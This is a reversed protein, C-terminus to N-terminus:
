DIKFLEKLKGQNYFDILILIYALILPGLVLGAIGFTYLGGIMGILAVAVPLHSKKSLFMPRLINDIAGVFFAGYLFLISASAIRGNLILFFCVPLWVLWTGIVPIIGLIIALITLILTGPIGLILLIIGVAIGQVLGILVQGFVVADTIGRFEDLFKKETTESFPSLKSVYEKLKRADRTAFYFTFLIVVLKLLVNPLDVLFDTFQNLFFSFAKSLLNNLNVSLARGFENGFLSPFSDVLPAILDANQISLYTDFTERIIAPIIFALPIAIVIIIGFILSSTALNENRIKNRIKKYVPYFVYALLLGIFIPIVIDRLVFLGLLGLLIIFAIALIRSIFKDQM